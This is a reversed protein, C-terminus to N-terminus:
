PVLIDDMAYHEDFPSALRAVALLLCRRRDFDDDSHRAAEELHEPGGVVFRPADVLPPFAPSVFPCVYTAAIGVVVFALSVSILAKAICADLWGNIVWDRDTPLKGFVSM